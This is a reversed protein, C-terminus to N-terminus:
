IMRPGALHQRCPFESGNALPGCYEERWPRHMHAKVGPRRSIFATQTKGRGGGLRFVVSHVVVDIKRRSGVDM